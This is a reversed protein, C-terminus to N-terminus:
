FGNSSCLGTGGRMIIIVIFYNQHLLVLVEMESVHRKLMTRILHGYHQYVKPTQDGDGDGDGHSTPLTCGQLGTSSRWSPSFLSSLGGSGSSSSSNRFIIKYELDQMLLQSMMSNDAGDCSCQFVVDPYFPVQNFLNGGRIIM